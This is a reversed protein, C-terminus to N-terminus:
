MPFMGLVKDQNFFWNHAFMHQMNTVHSVDWSGIDQNFDYADYFMRTMNTVSSVDWSGIDQNFNSAGYFMYFKWIRSM